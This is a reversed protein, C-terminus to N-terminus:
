RREHDAKELEDATAEEDPRLWWGKTIIQMPPAPPVRPVGASPKELSYNETQQRAPRHSPTPQDM